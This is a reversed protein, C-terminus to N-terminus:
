INLIRMFNLYNSRQCIYGSLGMSCNRAYWKGTLADITVCDGSKPEGINLVFFFLLM